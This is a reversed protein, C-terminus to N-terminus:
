DNEDAIDIYTRDHDTKPITVKLLGDHFTAKTEEKQIPFPLTITRETQQKEHTSSRQAAIRLRHAIMELEIENRKYGPLEATVIIESDYEDVDVWFPQMNFVSNMQKFSQNFFSDMQGMLGRFPSMDIDFKGPRNNNKSNM